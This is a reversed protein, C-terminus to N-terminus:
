RKEHTVTVSDTAIAGAAAPLAVLVYRRSTFLPDLTAGLRTQVQALLRRPIALRVGAPARAMATSLQELSVLGATGRSYFRASFPRKQVFLLQDRPGAIQDAYGILEKESKLRQPQLTILIALGLAAMPVALAVALPLRAPHRSLWRDLCTALLIAFAPLAPLVYTWLINGALTFFAMAFLSWALLYTTRTDQLATRLRNRGRGTVLSTLSAGLAVLGWPFTAALWHLWITGHPEVHASGYRDGTWGPDVFRLVHEGLLFYHLFGPTKAEAAIYWPLCLVAVLPIGQRWPLAQLHDRGNRHWLLWPLLPGAVLVLALPGKALLGLALGLFFGYRWRPLPQRPALAFASMSLTTGLVLFPDTMVAGAAVYPLLSTAYILLAWRAVRNGFLERALTFILALTAATALWSPLRAAFENVGLLRFALAQSWFALPPKGWFPVGPEFWPTIWDGSAAMLRAIEAYRPETTDAMPLMAMYILRLGLAAALVLWWRRISLPM